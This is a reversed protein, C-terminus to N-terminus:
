SCATGGNTKNERGADKVEKMRLRTLLASLSLPVGM